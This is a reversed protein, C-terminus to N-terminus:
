SSGSRSTLSEPPPAFVIRTAKVSVWGQPAPLSSPPLAWNVESPKVIAEKQFNSSKCFLSIYADPSFGSKPLGDSITPAGERLPTGRRRLSRVRLLVREAGLDARVGRLVEVGDGGPHPEGEAAAPVRVLLM